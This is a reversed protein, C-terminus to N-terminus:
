KFFIEFGSIKKNQNIFEEKIKPILSKEKELKQTLEDSKTKFSIKFKINLVIFLVALIPVIITSTLILGLILAVIIMFISGEPLSDLEKELDMILRERTEDIPPNDVFHTKEGDASIYIYHIKEYYVLTIKYVGVLLKEIEKDSEINTSGLTLNRSKRNGLQNLISMKLEELVAPRVFENLLSSSPRNFKLTVADFPIELSEVDKLYKPEYPNYMQSIVDDYKDNGSIIGQADARINGTITSWTTETVKKIGSEKESVYKENDVGIDCMYDSTGNYHYYYSPIVLPSIGSVIVSSLTDLPAAFDQTLYDIICKHLIESDATFSIGSKIGESTVTAKYEQIGEIVYSTYCFECKGVASKLNQLPAGCNNCNFNKVVPM